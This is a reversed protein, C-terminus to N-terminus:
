GVHMIKHFLLYIKPSFRMLMYGCFQRNVLFKRADSISYNKLQKKLVRVAKSYEKQANSRYLYELVKCTEHILHAHAYEIIEENNVSEDYMQKSIKYPDFHKEQFEGTMASSERVIYKYGCINTDMIIKNSKLIAQYVFSMDEGIKYCEPFKINRIIEAKFIKDVVQGGINGKFFEKLAKNNDECCFKYNSRYKVEVGNPHQKIFDVVAIDAFSRDILQYEREYLYPEVIDDSDLFTIYHGRAIKIGTNRANSVGANKQSIVVVNSYREEFKKCIKLSNDKSGDNILVVEIEGFITQNELSELTEKLYKESNYIPIIVSVKYAM